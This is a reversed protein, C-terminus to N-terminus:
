PEDHDFVPTEDFILQAALIRWPTLRLRKAVPGDPGLRCRLRFWSAPLRLSLL